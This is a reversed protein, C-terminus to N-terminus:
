WFTTSPMTIRPATNSSMSLRRLQRSSKAEMLGDGLTLSEGMESGLRSYLIEEFRYFVVRNGKIFFCRTAKKSTVRQQRRGEDMAAGGFFFAVMPTDSRVMVFGNKRSSPSAIFSSAAFCWISTM